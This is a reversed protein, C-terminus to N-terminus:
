DLQSLVTLIPRFEIRLNSSKVGRGSVRQDRTLAEGEPLGELILSIPVYERKKKSRTLCKRFEHSERGDNAGKPSRWKCGFKQGLKLPLLRELQIADGAERLSQYSRGQCLSTL